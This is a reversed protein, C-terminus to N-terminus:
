KWFHNVLVALGVSAVVWPLLESKLKTLGARLEPSLEAVPQSEIRDSAQAEALAEAIAESQEATLNAQQPRKALKLTDIM